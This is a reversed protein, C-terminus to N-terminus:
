HFRLCMGFCLIGNAPHIHVRAFRTQHRLVFAAIVIETGLTAQLGKLLIRTLVELRFADDASKDLSQGSGVPFLEPTASRRAAM